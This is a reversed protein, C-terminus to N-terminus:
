FSSGPQKLFELEEASSARGLIENRHPYRGFRDIIAKHKLEFEYNHGLGNARYLSEAWEHIRKSESHMFPLYLFTREIPSMANHAGVAIAEQALVLAMSDQSFALPSNRYINRSFQDLVIVEALRGKPEKRWAFLEGRMAQQLIALFRDKIQNDFERDSVWWMKPEIEEFWFKLVDQCM